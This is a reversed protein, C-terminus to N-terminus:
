AKMIQIDRQYLEMHLTFQPNHRTDAGENAIDEDIESYVRESWWCYTKKLKPEIFYLLKVDENPANYHTEFPRTAVMRM